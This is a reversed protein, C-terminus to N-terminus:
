DRELSQLWTAFERLQQTPLEYGVSLREPFFTLLLPPDITCGEPPVFVLLQAFKSNEASIYVDVCNDPALVPVYFGEPDLDQHTDLAFTNPPRYRKVMVFMRLFRALEQKDAQSIATRYVVVTSDEALVVQLFREIDSIQTEEGPSSTASSSSVQEQCGCAVFSIFVLAILMRLPLANM